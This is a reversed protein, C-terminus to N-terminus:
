REQFRQAQCDVVVERESQDKESGAAPHHLRIAQSWETPQPVQGQHTSIPPCVKNPGICRSWRWPDKKLTGNQIYKKQSCACNEVCGGFGNWIM